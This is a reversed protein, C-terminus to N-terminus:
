TMMKYGLFHCRNPETPQPSADAGSAWYVYGSVVDGDSLNVMTTVEVDVIYNSFDNISRKYTSIVGGVSTASGNKGIVVQVYGGSIDDIGAGFNLFWTGAGSAGITLTGNSENWTAVSSDGQNIAADGLNIIRTYTSTNINQAADQRGFFYYSLGSEVTTWGVASGSGNSTLVQGSTGYNAGGLGIEGASTIRLREATTGSSQTTFILGSDGSSKLANLRANDGSTDISLYPNSTSGEPTFQTIGNSAIRLRESSNTRFALSDDSHDYTILGVNASAEDGLRIQSTGTSNGILELRADKGSGTSSIKVNADNTSNFVHLPRDPIATGIGVSGGSTEVMSSYTVIGATGSNKFFQNASGNSAPLTIANDGAIAPPNIDIAGSTSGRLSLGM